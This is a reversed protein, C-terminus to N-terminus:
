PHNQAVDCYPLAKTLEQIKALTVQTNMVNVMRLERREALWAVGDDTVNPCGDLSLGRLRPIVRLEKVGKDTVPCKSLDIVALKPFRKLHVVGADTILSRSLTIQTVYRRGPMAALSALVDDTIQPGTLSIRVETLAMYNNRSSGGL